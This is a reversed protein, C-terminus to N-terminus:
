AGQGDGPVGAAELPELRVIHLLDVLVTSDYLTQAPDHTLGVIASRRGVEQRGRGRASVGILNLDCERSLRSLPPVM